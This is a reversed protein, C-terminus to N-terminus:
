ENIGWQPEPRGSHSLIEELVRSKTEARRRLREPSFGAVAPKRALEEIHSFFEM